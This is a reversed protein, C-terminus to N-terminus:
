PMRRIMGDIFSASEPYLEKEREFCARAADRDGSRYYFYGLTALKGPPVQRGRALTQDIEASLVQAEKQPSFEPTQMRWLSDEYAGWDYLPTSCGALAVALALVTM